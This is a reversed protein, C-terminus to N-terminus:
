PVSYRICGLDNSSSSSTQCYSFAQRFIRTYGHSDNFSTAEDLKIIPIYRLDGRVIRLISARIWGLDLWKYVPTNNSFWLRYALMRCAELCM